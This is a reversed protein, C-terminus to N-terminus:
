VWLTIHVQFIDNERCCEMVGNYKNVVYEISQIGIGHGRKEKKETRLHNIDVQFGCHNKMQLMMLNGRKKMVFSIWGVGKARECGEIANDWLNGLLAGWDVLEGIDLTPPLKEVEETVSINKKEAELKKSQILYDLALYGTKMIEEKKYFPLILKNLYRKAQEYEEEDLFSKLVILHNKTDHYIREKEIENQLNFEWQQMYLENQSEATKYLSQYKRYQLFLFLSLFIFPAILFFKKGHQIGEQEHGSIVALSCFYLCSYEVLPILGGYQRSFLFYKKIQGKQTWVYWLVLGLVFRSLALILIRYGSLNNQVKSIVNIEPKWIALLIYLFIELCYLTEFYIASLLWIQSSKKTNKYCFSQWIGCCVMCFILHFQSYMVLSRQYSSLISMFICGVVLLFKKWVDTRIGLMAPVCWFVGIMEMLVLINQLIKWLIM